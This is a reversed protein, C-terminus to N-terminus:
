TFEKAVGSAVRRFAAMVATDQAKRWALIVSVPPPNDQISLFSVGLIQLKKATAPVIAIGMGASVLGIVTHVQTASQVAQPAFGAKECMRMISSNFLPSTDKPFLIFPENALRSLPVSALSALPNSAPVAVLFQEDFIPLTSIEDTYTEPRTIGIDIQGKRMAVIQQAMSLERLDLDIDPYFSRFRQLIRPLLGYTSSHIFGIILRGLEGNAARRTDDEAREVDGLIARARELLLAGAATLEVRRQTRTFLIAGLREEIQQIQRSLAPQAIHVRSAARGFHLEEAVAVFYKLQRTELM